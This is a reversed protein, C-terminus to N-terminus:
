YEVRSRMAKIRSKRAKSELRKERSARSPSTPKRTKRVAASERLIMRLRRLADQRNQEQSRHQQAKIVIVGDKTMRRDYLALLRSKCYDPLSSARIDFRLHVATSVKNVHQGGSGGSRVAQITIEAADIAINRTIQM